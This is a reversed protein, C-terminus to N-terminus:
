EVLSLAGTLRSRVAQEVTLQMPEEPERLVVVVYGDDDDFIESAVASCRANAM